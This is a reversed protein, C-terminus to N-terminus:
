PKVLARIATAFREAAKIAALCQRHDEWGKTMQRASKRLAKVEADIAAAAEELGARRGREFVEMDRSSRQPGTLVTATGCDPCCHPPYTCDCETCRFGDDASRITAKGM